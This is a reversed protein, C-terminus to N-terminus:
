GTRELHRGSGVVLPAVRAATAPMMRAFRVASAVLWPQRVAIAVRRCRAHPRSFTQHHATAYAAACAQLLHPAPTAAPWVPELATDLIRASAMAWGMGEGTFPEVYAAADGVRLIRGTTSAVPHCRTLPPTGRFTATRVASALQAPELGLRVHADTGGLIALVAAAPTGSGTIAKRDIAAALDIRGDELRVLGCYGHRSVAMVLEAAEPGNPQDFGPLTAGVGIRGNAVIGSATTSLAQPPTPAPTKIGASLGTAVIVIETTVTARDGNAAVLRVTPAHTAEVPEVLETVRVGPLWVAGAAIAAAVGFSDLRERSLVGGALPLMVTHTATMLAVRRLPRPLLAEYGAGTSSPGAAALLHLEHLAAPSLCCGCLKPRPMPMADILLVALGRAALRRAAAFGAPGAGCVIAQWSTAAAAELAITAAVPALPPAAASTMRM